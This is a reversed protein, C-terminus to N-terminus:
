RSRIWEVGPDELEDLRKREAMVYVQRFLGTLTQSVNM